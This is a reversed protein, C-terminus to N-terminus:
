TPRFRPLALGPAIDEWVLEVALGVHVAGPDIDVLNSILRTGGGGELEVVVVVYPLRDSLSPVYARHVVTYTYVSGRGSVEQWTRNFSRCAPCLPGPPMRTHGCDACRQVLLRHAAAAQWWALTERSVAPTPLDDPFWRRTSM